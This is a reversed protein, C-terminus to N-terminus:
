KYLSALVQPYMKEIDSAILGPGFLTAAEGHVWCAACASDFADMGQALWGSVTGALVDGTGATALWAPANGNIVADGSASAIVTDAGKYVVVCNVKKAAELAKDTKSEQASIHEDDGFLLNFEGQHPTIVVRASSRQIMTFLVDPDSEFVSLADADLVVSSAHELAVQVMARTAQHIGLGPGLLVSTIRRDALLQELAAPTDVVRLMETTLHAATVATSGARCAVTVLGSGTRLAARAALRAAGTTAIGGALVVCHGRSYKHASADPKALGSQWLLPTNEFVNPRLENLVNDEIGIQGVHLEGVFERGPLLLHGPKKLFFTVTKDARIATGLVQGTNGDIGTPIDIAIVKADSSNIDDIWKAWDGDVPRDMGAGLLADVVLSYAKLDVDQMRIVAQKPLESLAKKADESLADQPSCLAVTVNYYDALLLNALVLGDGGNNGTGCAILIRDDRSLDSEIASFVAAGANNLLTYSSVGSTITIQDAQQMQAISLIAPYEGSM